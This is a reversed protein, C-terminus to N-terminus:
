GLGVFHPKCMGTDITPASTPNMARQIDDECKHIGELMSTRLLDIGPSLSCPTEEVIKRTQKIWQLEQKLSALMEKSCDCSNISLTKLSRISDRHNHLDIDLHVLQAHTESKESPRRVSSVAGHDLLTTEKPLTTKQERVPADARAHTRFGSPSTRAAPPDKLTM